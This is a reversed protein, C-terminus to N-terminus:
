ACQSREARQMAQTLAAEISPLRQEWDHRPVTIMNGFVLRGRGFPLPFRMRDWSRFQIAWQTWAAVPLVQAGSLAALQAVGAAAVRRPGRPGDPTLGVDSGAKLAAALRRLGAAGGRSSSGSVIGIGFTAMAMGILRGDRHGSALVVAPKVRGGRRALLWGVPMSPLTEHWFAVICPSGTVWRSVQEEGEIQWRTTLAVFQLYFGAIWAVARQVAESQLIQKFM